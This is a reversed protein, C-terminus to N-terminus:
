HKDEEENANNRSQDTSKFTLQISPLYRDTPKFIFEMSPLYRDTPKVTHLFSVFIYDVLSYRDTRHFQIEVHLYYRHSIYKFPDINYINIRHENKTRYQKVHCTPKHM